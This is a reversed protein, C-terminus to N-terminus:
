VITWSVVPAYKDTYDIGEIKNTEESVCDLRTSGLYHKLKYVWTLPLVNTTRLVQSRPVIDLTVAQQLAQMKIGMAECYEEGHVGNMAEM